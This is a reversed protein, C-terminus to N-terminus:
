RNAADWLQDTRLSKLPGSEPSRSFRRASSVDQEELTPPGSTYVWFLSIPFVFPSETGRPGFFPLTRSSDGVRRVGFAPEDRRIM